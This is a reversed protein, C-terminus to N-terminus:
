RGGLYATAPIFLSHGPPTKVTVGATTTEIVLEQAHQTISGTTYTSLDYPFNVFHGYNISKGRGIFIAYNRKGPILTDFDLGDDILSLYYQGQSPSESIPLHWQAIIDHSPKLM